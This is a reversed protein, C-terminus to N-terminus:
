ENGRYHETIYNNDKFCRGAGEKKLYITSLQKNIRRGTEESKCPNHYGELHGM